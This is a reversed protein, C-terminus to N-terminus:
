ARGRRLNLHITLLEPIAALFDTPKLKSGAIDKWRTLPYEYVCDVLAPIKGQGALIQMRALLEVDFIWRSRFPVGFLARVVGPDFRFLKAGCQTDYVPLRIAHSVATAFVRGLYHRYSRREIVRGLLAVRAGMVLQLEGRSRLVNQFHTIEELPTALDADWYGVFEVDSGAEVAALIGKRVAEAKGANQSMSVLRSRSGSATCFDALLRPTADSSGDDVFVFGVDHHSQLFAGFAAFDM